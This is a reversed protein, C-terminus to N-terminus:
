VPLVTVFKHSPIVSHSLARYVFGLSLQKQTLEGSIQNCKYQTIIIVIVIIITIIIIIIIFHLMYSCM